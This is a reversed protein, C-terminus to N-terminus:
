YCGGRMVYLEELLLVSVYKFSKWHEKLHILLQLYCCGNIVNCIALFLTFLWLYCCGSIVYFQSFVTYVCLVNSGM